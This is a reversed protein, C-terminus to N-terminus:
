VVAHAFARVGEIFADVQPDTGITVRRWNVYPPFPRAVVINRHRMFETFQSIPAGTDFFVFNGHDEAYPLHLRMATPRLGRFYRSGAM